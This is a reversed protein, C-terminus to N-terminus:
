TALALKHVLVQSYSASEFVPSSDIPRSLGFVTKALILKKKLFTHNDEQLCFARKDKTSM